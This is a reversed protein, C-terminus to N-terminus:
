SCIRPDSLSHKTKHKVPFTGTQMETEGGLYPDQLKKLFDVSSCKCCEPFLFCGGKQVLRSRPSWMSSLAHFPKVLGTQGPDLAGQLGTIHFIEGKLGASSLFRKIPYKKM